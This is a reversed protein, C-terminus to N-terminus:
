KNITAFGALFETIKGDLSVDHDLSFISLSFSIKNRVFKCARRKMDLERGLFENQFVQYELVPWAFGDKWQQTLDRTTLMKIMSKLEGKLYVKAVDDSM